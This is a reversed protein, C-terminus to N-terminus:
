QLPMASEWSYIDGENGTPFWRVNMKKTDEKSLTEKEHERSKM